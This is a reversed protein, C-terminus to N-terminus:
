FFTNLKPTRIAGLLILCTGQVQERDRTTRTLVGYFCSVFFQSVEKRVADEEEEVENSAGESPEEQNEQSEEEPDAELEAKKQEKLEAEWERRFSDLDVQPRFIFARTM